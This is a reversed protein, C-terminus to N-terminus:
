KKRTNNVVKLFAQAFAASFVYENKFKATSMRQFSLSIVAFDNQLYQSLARLITTKGYQRARNIIFYDGREVLHRIEQLRTELNVMYHKDPYCLGNINFYKEM